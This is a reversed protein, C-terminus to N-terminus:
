TASHEEVPLNTVSRIKEVEALIEEIVGYNEAIRTIQIWFATVVITIGLMAALYHPLVYEASRSWNAGSPDAAAGLGVMIIVSMIGALAWPFTSRKLRTSRRVLEPSLHYADCVEKCWRSTGIFYTVTISNVLMTVLAAAAGLMMHLTMRSRPTQFAANAILADQRARELDSSSGAQEVHEKREVDLLRVQTERKRKAAANFDGGFLGVVFNALLLVVAVLALVAFIRALAL